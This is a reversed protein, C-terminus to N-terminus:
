EDGGMYQQVLASNYNLAYWVTANSKSEIKRRKVVNSKVLREFTRRIIDVTWFPFEQERWEKQTLGFYKLGDKYRYTEGSTTTIQHLRAAVIAGQLGVEKALDMDVEVDNRM